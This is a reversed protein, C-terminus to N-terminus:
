FSIQIESSTKIETSFLSKEEKCNRWAYLRNLISKSMFKENTLRNESETCMCSTSLVRLFINRKGSIVQLVM